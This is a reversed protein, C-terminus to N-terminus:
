RRVAAKHRKTNRAKRSARQQQAMSMGVGKGGYLMRSQTMFHGGFLGRKAQRPANMRVTPAPQTMGLSGISALVIATAVALSKRFM